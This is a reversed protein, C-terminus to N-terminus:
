RRLPPVGDVPRLVAAVLGPRDSPVLGRRRDGGHFCQMTLWQTGPIPLTYQSQDFPIRRIQGHHGNSPGPRPGPPGTATGGSPSPCPCAEKLSGPPLDPRCGDVGEWGGGRVCVWSPSLAGSRKNQFSAQVFPGEPRVGGRLPVARHVAAPGTPHLGERPPDCARAMPPQSPSLVDLGVSPAPNACCGHNGDIEFNWPWVELVIELPFVQM